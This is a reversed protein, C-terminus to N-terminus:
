IVNKEYFDLKKYSWKFKCSTQIKGNAAMCISNKHIKFHEGAIKASAWEQIFNGELDYQYVKKSKGKILNEIHTKSLKRGRQWASMKEKTEANRTTGLGYTNGYLHKKQSPKMKYGLTNGATKVLNFKPKLNDLFWQELKLLYEVPCTVIIEFIFDDEGYKNWSYQMKKNPHKNKRLLYKHKYWRSFINKASGIYIKRNSKNEIKYIGSQM